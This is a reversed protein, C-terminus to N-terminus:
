IGLKREFALMGPRCFSGHVLQPRHTPWLSIADDCSPGVPVM